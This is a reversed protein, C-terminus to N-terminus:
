IWRQRHFAYLVGVTVVAMTVLMVVFGTENYFSPVIQHFATSFFSLILWNPLLVTSVLTLVKITNNTRHSVHSVYIDFTGNVAERAAALSDLLRQLRTELDRYYVDVGEGSLYPFDPRLFAQFVNQHQDALQRLAFTCRKVQVLDQLLDDSADTLARQEMKEIQEEIDEDLGEYYGLLEDLVIYLMFASDHQVVQPNQYTRAMIKDAFPLPLKHASLLYNEGLFLDLQSAHVKFASSDLRAITASTFFSRQFVDLQPRQWASLVGLRHLDLIRGLKELDREQYGCLDIWVFNEDHSILESVESLQVECPVADQRYLWVGLATDGERATSEDKASGELDLAELVSESVGSREDEGRSPGGAVSPITKGELDIRPARYEEEVVGDAM